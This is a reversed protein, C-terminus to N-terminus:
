KTPTGDKAPAPYTPVDGPATDNTKGSKMSHKVKPKATDTSTDIAGTSQQGYKSADGTHTTQEKELNSRPQGAPVVNPSPAKDMSSPTSTTQQAIAILPLACVTAAILKTFRKM